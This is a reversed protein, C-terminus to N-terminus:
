KAHAGAPGDRVPDTRLWEEPLDTVGWGNEHLERRLARIADIMRDAVEKYVRRMEPKAYLDSMDVPEGVIIAIENGHKWWKAGVPMVNQTGEHYVPVVKVKTQYALRGVGIQGPNINGTRSRTGEPYIHVIADGSLLEKLRMMGPQDVGHGRTIPIAQAKKLLWAVIPNFFFNKEEPVHWPFYRLSFRSVGWSAFLFPDILFDDILTLHNSVYLFPPPENKLIERRYVHVRNFLKLWLVGGMGISAQVLWSIAQNFPGRVWRRMKEVRALAEESSRARKPSRRRILRTILSM